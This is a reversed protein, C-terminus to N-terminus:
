GSSRPPEVDRRRRHLGSILLEVGLAIVTGVAILLLDRRTRASAAEVAVFSACTSQDLIEAQRDSSFSTTGGSNVVDEPAYVDGADAGRDRRAYGYSRPISSRCTWAPAGALNANPAPFTASEELALDGLELSTVGRTVEFRENYYAYLGADESAVVFVSFSDDPLASRSEVATGALQASSLVTPMGAVAPLSVYCGGLSARHRTWDAEFSVTVPSQSQAWDPVAVAVFTARPAKTAVPDLQIVADADADADALGPITFPALGDAGTWADLHDMAADVAANSALDDPIAFRVTTPSTLTEGNDIWFEATPALTVQVQVPEGCQRVQVAMSVTFGRDYGRTRLPAQLGEVRIGIGRQEPPRQVEVGILSGGLAVALLIVALGLGVRTPSLRGQRERRADLLLGSAGIAVALVVLGWWM